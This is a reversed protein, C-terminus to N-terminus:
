LQRMIHGDNQEKRVATSEYAGMRVRQRADQSPTNKKADQRRQEKLRRGEESFVEGAARRGTDHGYAPYGGKGGDQAGRSQPARGPPGRLDEM